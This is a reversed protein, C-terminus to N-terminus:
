HVKLVVRGKISARDQEFKAFVERVADIPVIESILEPGVTLSKDYLCEVTKQWEVGPWPASYSMWSGTLIMEKRNILEWEKASFSLSSTPTGILCIVGKNAVLQLGLRVTEASGVVDFVYACGHNSVSTRIRDVCDDDLSSVALDAGYNAAVALRDRSRGVVIIKKGGLIRCWQLAFLAIPGLGIVVVPADDHPKFGSLLIGHLAVTAPEVLAAKELPIFSDLRVVNRSPVVVYDAMAGQQRSGVFSYRKCLSYDGARCDACDYCPVLPVGVVRDGVAVNTVGDGVESVVGSFEHGLIQPFSHCTGQLVRPIDSGCIGCYAVSVKVMGPLCDPEPVDRVRIDNVGVVVAARM